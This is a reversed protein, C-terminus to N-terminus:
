GHLGQQLESTSRRVLHAQVVEDNGDKHVPWSEVDRPLQQVSTESSAEPEADAGANRLVDLIHLCVVKHIPGQPEWTVDEDEGARHEHSKGHTVRYTENPGHREAVHAAALRM